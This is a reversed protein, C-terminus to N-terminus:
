STSASSGSRDREVLSEFSGSTRRRSRRFIPNNSIVRSSGSSGSSSATGSSAGSPARGRGGAGSGGSGRRGFVRSFFNGIRRRISLGNPDVLTGPNNLVYSYRAVAEPLRAQSDQTLTMFAPDPSLWQGTQPALFRHAFHIFGTHPEHEQGTFGYRDVYGQQGSIDGFVGFSRRGLPESEDGTAMVVSGLHDHHLSVVSPRSGTLMRRAAAALWLESQSDGDLHARYAAGANLEEEPRDLWEAAYETSELRAVRTNGVRAYIVSVGDRIEFDPAVYHTLLGDEHRAVRLHSAGYVSRVTKEGESSILRGLFDWTNEFGHGDTVCGAADYAFNTEGISEPAGVRDGYDYEIGNLSQVRDITDFDMTAIEQTLDVETARYWADYTYQASQRLAGPAADDIRLVNNARDREVEIAQLAGNVGSVDVSTLRLRQDYRREDVVGNRHRRTELLGQATYTLADVIGPVEITRSADDYVFELTRGDPYVRQVVRNANDFRSELEYTKGEIVRVTSFPRRRVDYGFFDTGAPHSRLAVRGATNACRAPNCNESRDYETSIRTGDADAPDFREVERNLGDFRYAVTVGRADVREVVNGADDYGFTTTGSSPDVITLVRGLADFSQAKRHGEADIYGASHGLADYELRTVAIVDALNRELRVLRGLGDVERVTPTEHHPGSVDEDEGDFRLTRLPEYTQRERTAGGATDTDPHLLETLRGVGDYRYRVSLVDAPVSEDCNASTSEYSQFVELPQSRLNFM